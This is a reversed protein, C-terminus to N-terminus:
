SHGTTPQLVERLRVALAGAEVLEGQIGARTAAEIDTASDGFLVVDQLVEVFGLAQELMLTQPKRCPCGDTPLHPCALWFSVLPKGSTSTLLAGLSDMFSRLHAASFKGRALGSQNTVIGISWGESVLRNLEAHVGPYVRIGSAEFSYNAQNEILTGDRDLLVMRNGGSLETSAYGGLM